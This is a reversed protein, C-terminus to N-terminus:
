AAKKDVPKKGRETAAAAKVTAKAKAVQQERAEKRVRVAEAAAGTVIRRMEGEAFRKLVQRMLTQYGIGNIEGIAKFSEILTKELRISIPHLGASENIVPEDDDPAVMAFAEDCGLKGTEWAEDTSEIKQEM